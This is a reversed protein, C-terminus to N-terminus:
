LAIDLQIAKNKNSNQVYNRYMFFECSSVICIVCSLIFLERLGMLGTWTMVSLTSQLLIVQVYM